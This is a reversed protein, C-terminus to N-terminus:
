GAAKELAESVAGRIGTSSFTAGSVTDVEATQEELIEPIIGEAMELYPGDEGEASTIEVDTLRGDEVTVSVRIPGGFGASEGTYSGDKYAGDAESELIKSESVAEASEAKKDTNEANEANRYQLALKESELEAQLRAIQDEKARADLVSDYGIVLAFVALMSWIRIMLTKM